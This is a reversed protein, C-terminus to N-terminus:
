QADGFTTICLEGVDGNAQDRSTITRLRWIRSSYLERIREHDGYRIVVKDYQALELMSDRLDVHDQPTFKHRYKAGDKWWPPDVYHGRNADTKMTKLCDAVIERWDCCRFECRECVSGWVTRVSDIGSRFRKASAGGGANMRFPLGGKFERDTGGEGGRGMWSTVFYNVAHGVSCEGAKVV